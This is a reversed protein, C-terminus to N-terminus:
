RTRHTFPENDCGSIANGHAETQPAAGFGAVFQLVAAVAGQIPDPHTYAVPPSVVLPYVPCHKLWIHHMCQRRSHVHSSITEPRKRQRSRSEKAQPTSVGESLACVQKTSIRKVFTITDNNVAVLLYNLYLLSIFVFSLSLSFVNDWKVWPRWFFSVVYGIVEDKDEDEPAAALMAWRV